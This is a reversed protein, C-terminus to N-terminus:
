RGYPSKIFLAILCGMAFGLMPVTSGADPVPLAGVVVRVAHDNGAVAFLHDSLIPRGIIPATMTGWVPDPINQFLADRVWGQFYVQFTWWLNRDLPHVEVVFWNPTQGLIFFETGAESVEGSTGNDFHLPIGWRDHPPGWCLDFVLREASDEIIIAHAPIAALILLALLTKM